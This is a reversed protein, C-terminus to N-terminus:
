LSPCVEALLHKVMDADSYTKQEVNDTGLVLFLFFM